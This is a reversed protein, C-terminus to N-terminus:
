AFIGQRTISQARFISQAGVTNRLEKSNIENFVSDHELLIYGEGGYILEIMCLGVGERRRLGAGGRM